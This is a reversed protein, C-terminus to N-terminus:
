KGKSNSNSTSNTVLRALKPSGRRSANIVNRSERATWDCFTTIEAGTLKADGHLLRYQPLPMRGTQVDACAATLLGAVRGARNETQSSWESLNMARRGLEVDRKVLWSVPAIRSYWPWRTENSHCDRCAKNLIQQIPPPVTLHAEIGSTPNPGTPNVHAHVSVLQSGLVITAVAAALVGRHINARGHLAM